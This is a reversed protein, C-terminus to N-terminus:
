WWLRLHRAIVFADGGNNGPGALVLVPKGTSGALERALEAAALGAREMLQPHDPLAAAATEIRRVEATLYVPTQHPFNVTMAALKASNLASNPYFAAKCLVTLLRDRICM